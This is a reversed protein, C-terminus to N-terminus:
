EMKSLDCDTSLRVPAQIWTHFLHRTIGFGQVLRVMTRRKSEYKLDARCKSEYKLDAVGKTKNGYYATCINLM